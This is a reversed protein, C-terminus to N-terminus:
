AQKREQPKAPRYASKRPIKITYVLYEGQEKINSESEIGAMKMTDIAKEISNMFIKLDKVVFLRTPKKKENKNLLDAVYRETQAVNWQKLAIMGIAAPLDLREAIPLLARAHRETLGHELISKQIEQSFRLLRIKNAVTSQKKGLRNAVMQQTEGLMKMLGEIARAEEFYNLNCRQINEILSLAASDEATISTVIAPVEKMKLQRCAMLRREGSILQYKNRDIQQVTVPQLLGYNSISVALEELKEKDFIMRPQNPNPTISDIPLLVVRNVTKQKM